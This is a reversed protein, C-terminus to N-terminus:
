KKIITYKRRDLAEKAANFFDDQHDEKNIGAWLAVDEKNLSGGTYARKYWEAFLIACELEKHYLNGPNVDRKLMDVEAETLRLKWFPYDERLTDRSMGREALMKDLPNTFVLHNVANQQTHDSEQIM